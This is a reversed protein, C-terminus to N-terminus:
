LVNKILFCEIIMKRVAYCSVLLHRMFSGVMVQELQRVSIRNVSVSAAGKSVAVRWCYLLQKRLFIMFDGFAFLIDMLLLFVQNLGLSVKLLLDNILNSGL